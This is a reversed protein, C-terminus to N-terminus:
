LNEINITFKQVHGFDALRTLFTISFYDSHM